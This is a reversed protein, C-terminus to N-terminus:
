KSNLSKAYRAIGQDLTYLTKFSLHKVAKDLNLTQSKSLLGIGYATIIPEKNTTIKALTELIQAISKVLHYNLSKFKVKLGLQTFVKNLLIKVPMPEQNSINFIQNNSQPSNAALILAHAVNKVYSLDILAEGRNFLPFKGTKAIRLIRPMIAQDGEGIIGRPRLIVCDIDTNERELLTLEALRKSHAYHNSFTSPLPDSEKINLKDTYDFYVSTTSVYVIKTINTYAASDIINQTGVVNAQYFDRWNGWPSSLSACHFVVDAAEFAQKTASLNSIDVAKFHTHQQELSEGIKKNRGLAIIKCNHYTSRLEHLLHQGLFGTAGTVIVKM